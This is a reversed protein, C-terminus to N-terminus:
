STSCHMYSSAGVWNKLAMMHSCCNDDVHVCRPTGGHAVMLPASLKASKVDYRGNIKSSNSVSCHAQARVSLVIVRAVWRVHSRVCTCGVRVREATSICCRTLAIVQTMLQDAAAARPGIPGKAERDVGLQVHRHRRAV